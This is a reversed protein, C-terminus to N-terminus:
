ETLPLELEVGVLRVESSLFGTQRSYTIYLIPSENETFEPHALADYVWGNDNNPKIADFVKVPKSWPGEPTLSTRLRTKAELPQSYVSIYRQSFPNFFVSMIDNGNFIAKAEELSSSWNDNATYYTWASLTLVEAIPVRALRCPKVTGDIDCGYIYLMSDVLLVASGFGPESADFLLTPYKDVRNFVPREPAENFNKWVAISQGVGEFNFDGPEAYVKEYFVYAWNTVPDVVIDAPWIAWRAGCPNETCSQFNHLNNFAQEEDTLPFFAEPKENADVREQFDVIGNSTDFNNTWSWTNSLLSYGSNNVADLFTDGYLWVSKGDFITSYGGDRMTISAHTELVSLDTASKVWVDPPPGKDPNESKDFFGCASLMTIGLALVVSNRVM